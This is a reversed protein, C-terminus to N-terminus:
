LKNYVATVNDVDGDPFDVTYSWDIQSYNASITGNGNFVFGEIEQSSVSLRNGSLHAIVYKGTNLNYFNKILVQSSDTPDKIIEVTYTGTTSKFQESDEFCTWVDILNDRPNTPDTLDLIGECSFNIALLVTFLIINKNM